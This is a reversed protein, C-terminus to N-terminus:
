VRLDGLSSQLLRCEIKKKKESFVLRSMEHSDDALCVIWMFKREFFFFFFNDDAATTNPAKLTLTILLGLVSGNRVLYLILLTETINIM